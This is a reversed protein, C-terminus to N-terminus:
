LDQMNFKWYGGEKVFVLTMGNELRVVAREKIIDVGIIKYKLIEKMIDEGIKEGVKLQLEMYDKVDLKKMQDVTVGLRESLSKLQIENMSSIMTIISRIKDISGRSLVNIVASADKNHYANRLEEFAKEPTLPGDPKCSIVSIMCIIIFLSLKRLIYM